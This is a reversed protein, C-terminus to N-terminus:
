GIKSSILRCVKSEPAAVLILAFALVPLAFLVGIIPIVMFGAFAILLAFPLLIFGLTRSSIKERQCDSKNM